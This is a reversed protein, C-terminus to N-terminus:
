GQKKLADLKVQLEEIIKELAKIDRTKKFRRMGQLTAITTEVIKVRLEHLPTSM